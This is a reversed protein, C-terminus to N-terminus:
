RKPPRSFPSKIGIPINPAIEKNKKTLLKNKISKPSRAPITNSTTPILIIKLFALILYSTDWNLNFKITKLREKRKREKKVRYRISYVRYQNKIRAKERPM